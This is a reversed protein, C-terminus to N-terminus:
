RTLRLQDPFSRLTDARCFSTSSSSSSSSSYLLSNLTLLPRVGGDQCPRLTRSSGFRSLRCALWDSNSQFLKLTTLVPPPTSCWISHWYHVYEVVRASDQHVRCPSNVSDGQSDVMTAKSLKSISPWCHLLLYPHPKTYCILANLHGPHHRHHLHLICYHFGLKLPRFPQWTSPSSSPSPSPSPSWAAFVTWAFSIHNCPNQTLLVFRLTFIWCCAIPLPFECIWCQSQDNYRHFLAAPIKISSCAM